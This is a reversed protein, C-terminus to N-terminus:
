TARHTRACPEVEVRSVHRRIFFTDLSHECERRGRPGRRSCSTTFYSRDRPKTALPEIEIFM